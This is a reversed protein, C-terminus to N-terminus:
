IPAEVTVITGEGPKSQLRLTGGILRAREEMGALGLKGVKALDGARQPVEFGKGNDSITLMTKYEDFELTLWARSAESHRWVNRLAEQAIRFLLLEVDPSFRREPGEVAMGVDVGFHAEVDSTLWELAPLLGLDDLVSPRMDQSFRRVGELMKDVQGQMEDVIELQHRSLRGSTSVFSDLQRSLAVLEQATDDHLERAIRKREEEQARTVQELYFRMNEELRKEETVDRAMHQFARPQGDSAILSTTLKVHAVTGDKKIFQQDYAQEIVEGQLLRRGVERAVELGEPTLFDRVHRGLLEEEAYGGLALGAANSTVIKGELDQVIIADHANEFLERYGKESVALAEAMQRQRQYLRANEIAVGIVNAIAGLLGIQEPPFERRRRRAVCLTGMVKGKSKAPVILQSQIREQSVAVRTLRPDRSADMVVMPEGTEAVRGNFGEGLKMRELSAAFEDSVGEYAELVLDGTREDVIFGLFVEADMVQRVTTAARSLIGKQELSQSVISCVLNVAALQRERNQITRLDSQLEYQAVRLQALLNERRQKERQHGEFWLNVLLGVLIIGATEVSADAPSDSVLVIRPLMLALAVVLAALGAKIGFVFGAYTAPLLFLVREMAHRELGFFSTPAHTGVFPLQQPYHFAAALVFMVALLWLRPNGIARRVGGAIEAAMHKDALGAM